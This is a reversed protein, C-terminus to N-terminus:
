KKKIWKLMCRNSKRRTWKLMCTIWLLHKHERSLTLIRTPQYSKLHSRLNQHLMVDQNTQNLMFTVLQHQRERLLILNKIYHKVQRQVIILLLFCYSLKESVSAGQESLCYARNFRTFSFYLIIYMYM